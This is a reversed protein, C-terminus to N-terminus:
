SPALQKEVVLPIPAALYRSSLRRTVVDWVRTAADPASHARAAVAMSALSGRDALERVLHGVGRARARIGAGWGELVALNQTEQGPCAGVVVLPRGSALCESMTLGGSKGIVVHSRSMRDPMDTAFGTVTAPIGERAVFRAARHVLSPQNGCVVDLEVNSVGRFSRLVKLIPGVGFGGSTLLVRLPEGACPEKWDRTAGFASRVPIGTKVIAVPSVGLALLDAAAGDRATCYVDVGPAVWLAHAVYDTVVAVLPADLEGTLRLRGLEFLPYFHTAIVAAPHRELVHTILRESVSRDVMGRLLDRVPDHWDSAAFIAGYVPRAFRTSMLHSEVYARAFWRPAFALADIVEVPHGSAHGAEDLALAAAKHGGGVPAHLVLVPAADLSTPM